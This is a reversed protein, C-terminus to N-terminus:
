AARRGHRSASDSESDAKTEELEAIRKSMIRTLDALDRPSAGSTRELKKLLGRLLAIREQIPRWIMERIRHM